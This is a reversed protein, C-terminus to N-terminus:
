LSKSLLWQMLKDDFTCNWVDHGVGEIRNYTVDKGNSLLGEVMEDSQTVSVVPDSTGHFVMVPMSLTAANWKMGGGCIPAIAAFVSPRAMATYWTGYGGMSIGTLYIRKRDAGYKVAMKEIFSLISEIRAVWFTDSPCQPMIVNCPYDKKALLKSFGHVDMLELEGNGREGAGHLQIILPLGKTEGEPSYCVYPFEYEKEKHETRIMKLGIRM